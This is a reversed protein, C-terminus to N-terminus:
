VNAIIALRTTKTATTAFIEDTTPITIQFLNMVSTSPKSKITKKDKKCKKNVAM